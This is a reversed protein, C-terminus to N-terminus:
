RDADVRPRLAESLINMKEIKRSFNYAISMGFALPSNELFCLQNKMFTNHSGKSAISITPIRSDSGTKPRKRAIRAVLAAFPGIASTRQIIVRRGHLSGRAALKPSGEDSPVGDNTM